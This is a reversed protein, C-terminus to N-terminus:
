NTVQFAFVADAKMRKFENRLENQPLRYVDLGDNWRIREFVELEGGVLYPGCEYIMQKHSTNLKTSNLIARLNVQMYPHFPNSTGFQRSAREEKKQFYIEPDRLVAVPKDNYM